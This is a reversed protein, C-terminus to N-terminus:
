KRHKIELGNVLDYFLSELRNSNIGNLIMDFMQNDDNNKTRDIRRKLWAVYLYLIFKDRQNFILQNSRERSISVPSYNVLDTIIIFYLHNRLESSTSDYKSSRIFQQVYIRETKMKDTAGELSIVFCSIGAYDCLKQILSTSTDDETIKFETLYEALESPTPNKIGISILFSKLIEGEAPIFNMKFINEGGVIFEKYISRGSIPIRYLTSFSQINTQAFMSTRLENICPIHDSKYGKINLLTGLNLEDVYDKYKNLMTGRIHVKTSVPAEACVYIIKMREEPKVRSEDRVLSLVQETNTTLLYRSSDDILNNDDLHKLYWDPLLGPANISIPSRVSSIISTLYNFIGYKVFSITRGLITNTDPCKLISKKLNNYRERSYPSNRVGIKAIKLRGSSIDLRFDCVLIGLISLRLNKEDLNLLSLDSDEPIVVTKQSQQPNRTSSLINKTGSKYEEPNDISGPYLGSESLSENLLELDPVESSLVSYEVDKNGTYANLGYKESISRPLSIKQLVTGDLTKVHFLGYGRLQEDKMGYEPKDLRSQTEDQEDEYWDFRNIDEEPEDRSEDNRPYESSPQYEDQGFVYELILYFPTLSHDHLRYISGSDGQFSIGMSRIPTLDSTGLSMRLLQLNNNKIGYFSMFSDLSSKELKDMLVFFDSMRVISQNLTIIIPKSPSSYQESFSLCRASRESFSEYQPNSPNGEYIICDRLIVISKISGSYRVVGSKIRSEGVMEGVFLYTSYYGETDVLNLSNDSVNYVFMGSSNFIILTEDLNLLHSARYSSNYALYTLDEISAPVYTQRNNIYYQVHPKIRNFMDSSYINETSNIIRFMYDILKVLAPNQSYMLRVNSSIKVDKMSIKLSYSINASSYDGSHIGDGSLIMVVRLGSNYIRSYHIEDSDTWVLGKIDPAQVNSINYPDVSIGLKNFTKTFIRYPSFYEVVAYLEGDSYEPNEGFPNLREPISRLLEGSEMDLRSSLNLRSGSSNDVHQVKLAKKIGANFKIANELSLGSVTEDQKMRFRRMKYKNVSYDPFLKSFIRLYRSFETDRTDWSNTLPIFRLNLDPSLGLNDLSQIHELIDISPRVIM